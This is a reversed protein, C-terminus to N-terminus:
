LRGTKVAQVFATWATRSVVHPGRSRDKTDRVGVAGDLPAAEVCTDAGQQSHSSIRWEATALESSPTIM